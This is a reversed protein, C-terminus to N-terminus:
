TTIWYYVASGSNSVLLVVTNYFGWIQSCTDHKQSLVTLQLCSSSWSFDLCVPLITLLNNNLPLIQCCKWSYYCSVSLMATFLRSMAPCTKLVTLVAETQILHTECSSVSSVSLTSINYWRPYEGIALILCIFGAIWRYWGTKRFFYNNLPLTFLWHMVDLSVSVTRM